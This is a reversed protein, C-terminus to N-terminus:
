LWNSDFIKPNHNIGGDVISVDGVPAGSSRTPLSSLWSGRSGSCMVTGPTNHEGTRAPLTGARLASNQPGRRCDGRSPLRSESNGTANAADKHVAPAPGGDASISISLTRAHTRMKTHTAKKGM